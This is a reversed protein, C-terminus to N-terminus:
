PMHALKALTISLFLNRGQFNTSNHFEFTYRFGLLGVLNGKAFFPMQVEPGVGYAKNKGPSLIRPIDNGSDNTTKWQMVYAMGASAAGKIFSRGFGGEITLYDGVKVDQNNKKQYIDYSMTGAAHWNKAQDFYVTTGATLEHGWMHLTRPGTPAYFGYAALFDARKTTWGLNIPQVFTDGSGWGVGKTSGGALAVSLRNDMFTPVVQFGYNGGLIKWKTTVTLVPALIPVTVNYDGPLRRGDAGVLSGYDSRYYLPITFFYGEPAQSGSKIGLDGRLNLGLYQARAPIATGALLGAILAGVSLARSTLIRFKARNDRSM